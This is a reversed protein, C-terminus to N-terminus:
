RTREKAHGGAHAWPTALSNTRAPLTLMACTM